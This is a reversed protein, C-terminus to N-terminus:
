IVPLAARMKKVYDITEPQLRARSLIQNRTLEGSIQEDWILIARKVKKSGGNYSAALYEFLRPSNAPLDKAAAPLEGLVADLYGYSAKLANEHDRMGAEFDTKLGLDSRKALRAYTSPMFQPLGLAGASSRSYNYAMGPNLAVTAYVQGIADSPNNRLASANTHEVVMLAKVLDSSITETVKKGSLARSTVNRRNLDEGAKAILGDLVREGEVIIEAQHLTKNYPTYVAEEVDYRVVTKGEKVEHFIPYRVAVVVHNPDDTTYDTNIWNALRISIGVPSTGEISLEKGTKTGDVYAIEDTARNWVAITVARSADQGIPQMPYRISKGEAAVRSRLEDQAKYVAQLVPPLNSTPPQLDPTSSSVPLGVSIRLENESSSKKGSAPHYYMGDAMKLITPSAEQAHVVPVLVFGFCAFVGVFIFSSIRLLSM